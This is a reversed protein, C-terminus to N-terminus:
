RVPPTVVGCPFRIRVDHNGSKIAECSTGLLEIESASNLRWGNPDNCGLPSGDLTVTGRCADAPDVSGSMRLVCGRVGGIIQTFADILEQQSLARFYPANMMGNPPLGKGANAMQQAHPLSVDPGVVIYYTEIGAAHARQVAEVSLQQSAADHADPDVCTDPNGDTALAIIKPGNAPYPALDAAVADISEATPTDGAPGNARMLAAIANFNGLAVPVSQLVPCEGGANGGNSTYLTLGFRVENELTSIV